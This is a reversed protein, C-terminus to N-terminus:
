DLRGTRSGGQGGADPGEDRSSKRGRHLCVLDAHPLPMGPSPSRRAQLTHQFGGNAILVIKPPHSAGPSFRSPGHAQLLPFAATLPVHSGSSQRGTRASRVTSATLFTSNEGLCGRCPLRMERHLSSMLQLVTAHM